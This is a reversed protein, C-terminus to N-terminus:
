YGIISFFQFLLIDMHLVSDSQRAGSVLVTNFILWVETLWLLLLLLLLPGHFKVKLSIVLWLPIFNLTQLLPM